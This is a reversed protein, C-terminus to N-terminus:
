EKVIKKISRGGGSEIQLFYLGGSLSALNIQRESPNAVLVTRGNVDLIRVADLSTAADAQITLIDRVPNPAIAVAIRSHAPASLFAPVAAELTTQEEDIALLPINFDATTSTFYPYLDGARYYHYSTFSATGVTGFGPYQLSLAQVIKLRTVPVTDDGWPLDDTHLTGYADVTGTITGTFTGNYEDYLYTGGISETHTEGYTMESMDAMFSGNDSYNITFDANEVGTVSWGNLFAYSMTTVDNITVSNGVVRTTGPYEATQGATPAVNGYVSTGISTLQDFNWSLNGGTASQDLAVASAVRFYTRQSTGDATWPDDNIYGYYGTIPDQAFGLATTALLAFLLKKRMEILKPVCIYFIVLFFGSL